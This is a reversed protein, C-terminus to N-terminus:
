TKLNTNSKKIFQVEQQCVFGYSVYHIGGIKHGEALSISLIGQKNIKAKINPKGLINVEQGYVRIGERIEIQIQRLEWENVYITKKGDTVMFIVPTYRKINSLKGKM